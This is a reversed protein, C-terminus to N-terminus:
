ETSTREPRTSEELAFIISRYDKGTALNMGLECTRNSALYADFHRDSIEAVQESTASKTLEPHLMGRDGAFACCTAYIPTVAEEALEAALAHIKESLGLHHTSCVPHVVASHLRKTVKLRPLLYDYAWAVSDLLTLRKHRELNEPTLYHLIESTIGFTCSSADCVVPLRGHDSWRWMSDVIKNAMYSNGDDYGKSHWVTACCNGALDDPLWVPMGARASVTVMAEALSTESKSDEANGFMRNVCASFYVAAAGEKKTSPFKVNAAPPINPLCVPVLDNSVVSRALSTLGKAPLHGLVRSSINNATLALRGGLEVEAWHEALKEAVYEQAHTHELHRFQKMLVGTNIGLPCAMSCMGDGACTEIADYEYERLLAETLPSGEPQRLMERRLVIRQRPTTTLNRSPCVPECYGCEICGDVENEVTPVTHLHHLHSKPDHTLLVGPSLISGPDALAKLRWMLGTLKSGWEREVFPAINRGTGHEAKLSGDYKDVVTAVVDRLFGDFQAIDAETNLSPTILFHLNGASAHGFVTGEYGHRVFLKQLDVAGDALREPPFCVDELILSRGSPRAGGVSPLLGNRVNWFQAAIHPDKTFDAPELLQLTSLIENAANEAGALKELSSERFEVLLATATDSFRKWRDPVGPKGEVARISARDSVEVAAAGHQVFPAVAACASHMDPFFLFATLRHKDDPITEFVVESIFGLTGESGVMLLRFIELPTKADLFAEMHYGTTNKISFKKRIRATLPPDALIEGRIDLLGKALVPEADAFKQEADPDATNIKTGSPLIFTMSEITKYSNEATGCCMGSANNAVVGGITAVGSSAPDPGLRYGYPALALNARFMVTGPRVRLRAGGKEVKWGAWHKRADLLIGDGQAQGSLSSGASRITVTQKKERAYALIKQVEAETRPTVVIKPFMRYPSADTAFRILDLARAHVQDKGLMEVMDDRLWAPSGQAIEDPARDHTPPHTRPEIRAPDPQFLKHM